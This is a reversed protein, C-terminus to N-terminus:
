ATAAEKQEWKQREELKGLQYGIVTAKDEADMGVLKKAIEEIMKKREEKSM